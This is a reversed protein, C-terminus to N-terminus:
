GAMLFVLVGAVFYYILTPGELQAPVVQVGYAFSAYLLGITAVAFLATMIKRNFVIKAVIMVSMVIYCQLEWPLTWLNSNVVDTTNNVFVGPLKFHIDGLINLFYGWFM